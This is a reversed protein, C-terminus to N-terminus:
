ESTMYFAFLNQKLLNKSMIDDFLPVIDKQAIKSYALGIIADFEFINFIDQQNEVLGFKFNKILITGPGDSDSKNTFGLRIDDTMFHGNLSGTGFHITANEELMKASSSKSYNYFNHNKNQFENLLDVKSSLIWTNASGTDFLARM